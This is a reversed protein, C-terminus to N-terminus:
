RSVVHARYWDLSRRIGTELPTEIDSWQPVLATLVDTSVDKRYQGDPGQGTFIIKGSYGAVSAVTEALERISHNHRPAVNVTTNLAVGRVLLAVLAAVDEVFLFQRLATGGGFFACEPRKDHRAEEIRDIAAALFHNGAEGYHDGPGYLNSPVLATYPVRYQTHLAKMGHWLARKASAYAANSPPPPGAEIAEESMPYQEHALRDPYMCTSLAAILHQPPHRRLAGLMNADIRLNDVLLDAPEALNTTIGGVRAALHIVVDPKLEGIFEQTDQPSTLDVDSSSVGTCGPLAASVAGGLFGSAGTILVRAPNM